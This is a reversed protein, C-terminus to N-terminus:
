PVTSFRIEYTFELPEGVRAAYRTWQGGVAEKSISGTGVLRSKYGRSEYSFDVTWQDGDIVLPLQEAVRNVDTPYLFGPGFEIELVSDCENEYDAWPDLLVAGTQTSNFYTPADPEHRVEARVEYTTPQEASFCSLCLVLSLPFASTMAQKM